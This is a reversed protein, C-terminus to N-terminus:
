NFLDILYNSLFYFLKLSTPDERFISWALPTPDCRLFVTLRTPPLQPAKPAVWFILSGIPFSSGQGSWLVRKAPGRMRCAGHVDSFTCFALIAWVIEFIGWCRSRKAGFPRDKVIRHNKSNRQNIKTSLLSILWNSM